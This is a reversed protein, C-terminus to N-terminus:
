SGSFQLKTHRGDHGPTDHSFAPNRDELDLDCPPPVTLDEFFYSNREYRRFTQVTRLCMQCLPAHDCASTHGHCKPNRVEIDLDCHPNFDESFIKDPNYRRFLKVKRRSVQYPPTDITMVQLTMRFPNRDELRGCGSRM